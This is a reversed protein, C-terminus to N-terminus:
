SGRENAARVAPLHFMRGFHGTLAPDPPPKTNNAQVSSWFGFGGLGVAIFLGFSALLMTPLFWVGCSKQQHTNSAKM